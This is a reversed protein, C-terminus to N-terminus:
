RESGAAVAQPTLAMGPLGDGSAHGRIYQGPDSAGIASVVYSGKILDYWVWSNGNTGGVDYTPFTFVRGVRWLKGANDYTDHAVICWCDEEVYFTRRSYAHRAGEKRTAEIVWVRRKEMRVAAPNIHQPGVADKTLMTNTVGYVNYPVIMEKKGVLKFDFRDLRGRFGDVDDWFLSGGFSAIPTDYGFEPAARVRRQGPTYFWVKQGGDGGEVEPLYYTLFVTGASSPPAILKSSAGYTANFTSQRMKGSHEAWPRLVYADVDPLLAIKGASDVQFAKVREETVVPGFGEKFNWMVEYGNKPIPFPVGAFPLGDSAAGKLNDGEVAGGLTATTANKQTNELFWASYAVSRRTPYVDLRYTPFKALLAKDGETLVAQYKDANKADISYLPKDDAFPDAYHDAQAPPKTLGGAYAPISGDSSAGAEAGFKTLTSGLAKAEDATVAATALGSSLFYASCVVAATKLIFLNM